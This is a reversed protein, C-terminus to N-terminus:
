AGRAADMIAWPSYATHTRFNPLHCMPITAQAKLPYTDSSTMFLFPSQKFHARPADRDALGAFDWGPASTDRDPLEDRRSSVDGCQQGPVHECRPGTVHLPSTAAHVLLAGCALWSRARERTHCSPRRARHWAGGRRSASFFTLPVPTGVTCLLARLTVSRLASSLPPQWCPCVRAASPELSCPVEITYNCLVLRRARATNRLGPKSRHRNECLLVTEEKGPM